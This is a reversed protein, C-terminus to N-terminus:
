APRYTQPTVRMLLNDRKVGEHLEWQPLLKVAQFGCKEYVRIARLNTAVPDLIVQDAQQNHFLYDLITRIMETGIGRNWYAVEGIFQDIGWANADPAVGFLPRVDAEVPYFQLYGIPVGEYAVMCPVFPDDPRPLYAERVLAESAPNDRGQYFELVRKDTLWKALLAM